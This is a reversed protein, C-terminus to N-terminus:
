SRLLLTPANTSRAAAAFRVAPRERLLITHLSTIRAARRTAPDRHLGHTMLRRWFAGDTSFRLSLVDPMRAAINVLRILPQAAIEDCWATSAGCVIRAAYPNRRVLQWAFGLAAAVLQSEGPSVGPDEGFLDAHPQVALMSLWFEIDDERCCCLLFPCRALRQIQREHLSGLDAIIREAPGRLLRRAVSRHQLLRLFSVNLEFIDEFDMNQPAAFEM